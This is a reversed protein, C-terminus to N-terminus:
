KNIMIEKLAKIIQEKAVKSQFSVVKNSGGGRIDIKTKLDSFYRNAMNNPEFIAGCRMDGNDSIIFLAKERQWNVNLFIALEKSTFGEICIINQKLTDAKMMELFLIKEKLIKEKKTKDRLEEQMQEIREKLETNKVGAIKCAESLLQHEKQFRYKSAPGIACFVKTGRSTKEKGLVVASGIEGTYNVHLTACPQEDFSGIKVIRVQSFNQYEPNPYDKGEIYRFSIPVNAYIVEDMYKQINKLEEDDITTNVEYWQNDAQCGIAIIEKNRKRYYGDMAHFLTQVSTNLLRTEHDVQMIIPNELLGDVKHWLEDGEYKLDLVEKGNIKGKDALMGGKNGYFITQEFLYYQDKYDKIKTKLNLVEYHDNM